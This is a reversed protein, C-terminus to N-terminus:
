SPLIRKFYFNSTDYVPTEARYAGAVRCRWKELDADVFGCCPDLALLNKKSLKISDLTKTRM